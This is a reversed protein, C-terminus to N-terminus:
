QTLSGNGYVMLNVSDSLAELSSPGEKVQQGMIYSGNNGLSPTGDPQIEPQIQIIFASGVASFLGAFILSSDLDNSYKEQYEKDYEDAIIKYAKWFETKKDTTLPPKPKLEEVLRNAQEKQQILFDTFCAQLTNTLRENDSIPQGDAEENLAVNTPLSLSAAASPQLLNHPGGATYVIPQIDSKESSSM